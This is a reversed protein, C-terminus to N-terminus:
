MGGPIPLPVGAILNEMIAQAAALAEQAKDLGAHARKVAQDAVQVASLADLRKKTADAQGRVAKEKKLGVDIVHKNFEVLRDTQEKIQQRLGEFVPNPGFDPVLIPPGPFDGIPTHVTTPELHTGVPIKDFGKSIWDALQEAWDALQREAKAKEQNLAVLTQNIDDLSKNVQNVLGDQVDLAKKQVDLASQALDLAKEADSLLKRFPALFNLPSLDRLLGEVADLLDGDAASMVGLTSGSRVDKFDEIFLGFPNNQFGPGTALYKTMAEQIGGPFRQRLMIWWDKIALDITASRFGSLEYTLVMLWSQLWSDEHDSEHLYQRGSEERDGAWIVAEASNLARGAALRLHLIAGVHRGLWSEETFKGPEVNNYNYPVVSNPNLVKTGERLLGLWGQGRQIPDLNFIAERLPQKAGEGYRLINKAINRFDCIGALGGLGIYDDVGEQFGLNTPTHRYLGLGPEVECSAIAAAIAIRDYAVNRLQMITCAIATYLLGNGTQSEGGPVALITHILGYKDQYPKWSEYTLGSM